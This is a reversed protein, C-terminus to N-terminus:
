AVAGGHEGFSVIKESPMRRVKFSGGGSRGSSSGLSGGNDKGGTMRAGEKEEKGEKGEEDSEESLESERANM